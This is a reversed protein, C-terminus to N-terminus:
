DRTALYAEAEEETLQEVRLDWDAFNAIIEFQYRGEQMFLKLGNAARRIKLVRSDFFGTDANILNLEFGTTMRYDSNVRWQLLWPGETEFVRTKANGTGQMSAIVEGAQAPAAAILALAVTVILLKM